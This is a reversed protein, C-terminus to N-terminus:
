EPPRPECGALIKITAHPDGTITMCTSPCLFIRTPNVPDDYYWAEQTGCEAASGVLGLKVLTGASSTYDVNVLHPDVPSGSSTATPVPFDCALAMGRIALLTNLLDQTATGGDAVYYGQMTGGASAIQNLQQESSGTLGVVYTLVGYQTYADGALQAINGINTDCGVPEGDTVLVVVTQANVSAMQRASAWQLAGDLAAYIPTAPNPTPMAPGPPVSAAVAAVLAAEQADTPAPDPTLVGVDVLPQACVTADCNPMTDDQFGTCGAADDPFFRLAVGLQAASPDQFFLTLAQSTLDWRSPGGDTCALSDGFGPPTAAPNACQTM